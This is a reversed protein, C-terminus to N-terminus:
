KKEYIAVAAAQEKTHSLSIAIFREERKLEGALEVEPKGSPANRVSINKHLVGGKGLAKFVAEKAAFRVAFHQASNKRSSCYKIERRSFVRNLFRRDRVLKAIRGVEVIDIGINKIMETKLRM